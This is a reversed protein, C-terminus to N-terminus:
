ELTELYQDVTEQISKTMEASTINGQLLQDFGSILDSQFTGFRSSEYWISSSSNFDEPNSEIAELIADAYAPPMVDYIQKSAEVNAPISNTDIYWQQVVPDTILFHFFDWVLEKQEGDKYMSINWDGMNSSTLGKHPGDIVQPMTLFMFRDELGAMKITNYANFVNEIWVMAIDHDETYLNGLDLGELYDPSSYQHLDAMYDFVEQTKETDFHVKCDTIKPAYEFVEDDFGRGVIIFDKQADSAKIMSIGYTQKGTVPDTGTCAEAIKEMDDFTWSSDPLDVGYDELIQKDVVCLVPNVTLSLGYPLNQTMDDPNRRLPYFTLAEKVEPDNNIYETLDESYDANGNGHVLIDYDGSLAATQIAAKWNDWPITEIVLEVNPYLEHWRDVVVNYGPRTAGTIMDTTGDPGVDTFLGPGYMRLTATVDSIVESGGEAAGTSDEAADASGEADAIDATDDSAEEVPAPEPTSTESTQTGSDGSGCGALSGAVMLACTLLALCKKRNM